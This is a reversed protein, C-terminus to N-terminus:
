QDTGASWENGRFIRQGTKWGGIQGEGGGARIDHEGARGIITAPRAGQHLPTRGVEPM